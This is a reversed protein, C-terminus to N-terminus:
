NRKVYRKIIFGLSEVRGVLLEEAYANHTELIIAKVGKALNELGIANLAEFEAGECDMKLLDISQPIESVAEALSVGDVDEYVVQTSSKDTIQRVISESLTPLGTSVFNQTLPIHLTAQGCAKTIAAQRLNIQDAYPSSIVNESLIKFNASCPEFCYVTAGLNAAYLAYIGQNAGIDLVTMGPTLTVDQGYCHQEWIENIIFDVGSFGKVKLDPLLSYEKLEGFLM